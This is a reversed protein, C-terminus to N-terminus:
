RVDRALTTLLVMADPQQAALWDLLQPLRVALSNVNWTALKTMGRAYRSGWLTGGAAQM